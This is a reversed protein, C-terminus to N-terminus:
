PVKVSPDFCTQLRKAIDAARDSVHELAHFVEICRIFQRSREPDERMMQLLLNRSTKFTRDVADDGAVLSLAAERSYQSYLRLSARLNAQAMTSMERLLGNMEYPFEGHLKVVRHTLKAAEDGIKELENVLFLTASLFRLDAAERNSAALASIVREVISQETADVEEEWQLVKEALGEQDELAVRTALSVMEFVLSGMRVADAELDRLTESYSPQQLQQAM